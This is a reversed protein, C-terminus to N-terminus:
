DTYAYLTTNTLFLWSHHPNILILETCIKQILSLLFDFTKFFKLPFIYFIVYLKKNLFKFIYIWVLNFINKVLFKFQAYCKSYIWRIKLNKFNFCLHTISSFIKDIRIAIWNVGSILVSNCNWSANGGLINKLIGMGMGIGIKIKM